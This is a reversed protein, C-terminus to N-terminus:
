KAYMRSTLISAVERKRQSKVKPNPSQALWEILRFRLRQPDASELLVQSPDTNLALNSLELVEVDDLEPQQMESLDFEQAM